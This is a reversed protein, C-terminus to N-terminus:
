DLKKDLEEDKELFKNEIAEQNGYIFLQDGEQIKEEDLRNRINVKGRKIFLISIDEGREVLDSAKKDIFKSDEKIVIDTVLDNEDLYLADKIPLESIELKKEMEHNLKKKLRERIFPTKGILLMVLLIVNIIMLEKLRLDNSLINTISSIVVALSFAGFLILFMSLRRRVPHDMILQAEDTTFGTNTLMSIVQYRSVATELGTLNFLIVSIEIVFAVILFYLIMFVMGM